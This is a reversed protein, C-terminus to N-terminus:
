QHTVPLKARGWFLFPGVREGENVLRL